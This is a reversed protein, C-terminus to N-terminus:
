IMEEEGKGGGEEERLAQLLGPAPFSPSATEPETTPFIDIADDFADENDDETM